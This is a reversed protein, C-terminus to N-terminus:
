AEPAAEDPFQPEPRFMSQEYEIKTIYQGPVVVLGVFRSTMHLKVSSASSSNADSSSAADPSALADRVASASPQRYEHTQALIVNRDKDTCRMQGLFMRGDSVHIRLPRNIFQALFPIAQTNTMSPLDGQPQATEITSEM